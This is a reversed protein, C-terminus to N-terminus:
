VLSIWSVGDREMEVLLDVDSEARGEGRATSGFVRINSAGHTAAIRMIEARRERLREVTLTSM